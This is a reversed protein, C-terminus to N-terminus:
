RGNNSDITADMQSIFDEPSLMGLALEQEADALSTMTAADLKDDWSVWSQEANEFLPYVDYFLQDMGEPIPINYPSYVGAHYCAEGYHEAIYELLQRMTADYTKANFGIGVGAHIPIDTSMNEMGDMSPVPFVGLKGEAYMKSANPILGSGGYFIAGTGGFFINVADTYDSSTFGRQFYNGTGLTRVLEVGAQAAENSAFDDTGAIWDMIFDDHTVRWPIFSLYRTLQWNDKGGVVVPVEGNDLLVQCVDIFEQWTTPPELGYKAFIDTRYFFFECYLAQPMLYMQGDNADKLFDVVAMNYQDFLGLEELEKQTNLLQGSAKAADSYPGNFCGYIDPLQDSSIYLQLKNMYDAKNAILEYEITLGHEEGFKDLIQSWTRYTEDNGGTNLLVTIKTREGSTSEASGGAFLSICTLLVILVSLLRKVSKM